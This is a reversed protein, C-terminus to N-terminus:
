DKSGTVQVGTKIQESPFLIVEDGEKLGGLVECHEEARHGLEVPVLQAKGLHIVFVQWKGNRQFLASSPLLLVNQGSWTVIQAQLRYGSGLNAPADHLGVVINVRQEKVGLASVETFGEPEVVRVEGELKQKGGWDQIHVRDGVQILAADESLVDIVAELEGANGLALLPAGAPIVKQDKEFIRLIRGAVPAHVEIADKGRAGPTTSVIAAQAAAADAASARVSAQAVVLQQKNSAYKLEVEDYEVETMAGSKLLKQARAADRESQNLRTKLEEVRAWAEGRRAQAAAASAEAMRIDRENEPAHYLSAILEDKELQDGEEWHIRTLLGGVPAAVIFRHRIRTQGEENVTIEQVVDSDIPILPLQPKEQPSLLPPM